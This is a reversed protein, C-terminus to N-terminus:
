SLVNGKVRVLHYAQIEREYVEKFGQDHSYM